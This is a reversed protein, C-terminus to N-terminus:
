RGPARVVSSFSPAPGVQRRLSQTTVSAHARSSLDVLLGHLDTPCSLQFSPGVLTFQASTVNSGVLLEKTKELKQKWNEIEIEFNFLYQPKLNLYACEYYFELM